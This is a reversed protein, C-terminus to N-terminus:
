RDQREQEKLDYFQQLGGSKQYNILIKAIALLQTFLDQFVQEFPFSEQQLNGSELHRLVHHLRFKYTPDSKSRVLFRLCDKLPLGSDALQKWQGTIAALWAVKPKQLQTPEV